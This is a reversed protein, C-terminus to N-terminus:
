TGSSIRTAKRTDKRGSTQRRTTMPSSRRRQRVAEGWLGTKEVPYTIPKERMACEAMASKSWAYMTLVSEDDNLFALYGLPSATVAGAGEVAYSLLEGEPRKAMGHFGLMYTLRLENKGSRSSTRRLPATRTASNRKRTRSTRSTVSQRSQVSLRGRRNYLPSAKGMITM